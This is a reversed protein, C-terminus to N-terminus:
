VLYIKRKLIHTKLAKRNDSRQLSQYTIKVSIYKKMYRYVFNSIVFMSSVCFFDYELSNKNSKILKTDMAYPFETTLPLLFISKGSM